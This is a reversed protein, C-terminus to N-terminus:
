EWASPAKRLGGCLVFFLVFPVGVMLGLPPGAEPAGMANCLFGVGMGILFIFVSAIVIRLKM